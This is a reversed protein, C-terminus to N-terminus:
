PGDEEAFRWAVLRVPEVTAGATNRWAVEVEVRRAHAPDEGGAEVESVDVALTGAPLAAAAEATLEWGATGEQTLESWSLQALREMQNAAEHIAALRRESERRQSAVAALLQAIGGLVVGTVLIAIMLELVTIGRRRMGQKGSLFQSPFTTYRQALGLCLFEVFFGFNVHTRGRGAVSWNSDYPTQFGKSKRLRVM